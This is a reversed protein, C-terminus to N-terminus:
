PSQEGWRLRPRVNRVEASEDERNRRADNNEDALNTREGDHEQQEVSGQEIWGKLEPISFLGQLKNNISTDHDAEDEAKWDWFLLTTRNRYEQVTFCVYTRNMEMLVECETAVENMVHLLRTTENKDYMQAYWFLKTMCIFDKKIYDDRELPLCVEYSTTKKAYAPDITSTPLKRNTYLVLHILDPNIYYGSMNKFVMVCGYRKHGCSYECRAGRMGRRFCIACNGYKEYPEQSIITEINLGECLTRYEKLHKIRKRVDKTWQWDNPSITAKEVWRALENYCIKYLGDKIDRNYRNLKEKKTREAREQMSKKATEAVVGHIVIPRTDEKTYLARLRKLKRNTIATMLMHSVVELRKVDTFEYCERTKEKININPFERIGFLEDEPSSSITRHYESHNELQKKVFGYVEEHGKDKVTKWIDLPYLVSGDYTRKPEVDEGIRPDRFWLDMKVKTLLHISLYIRVITYASKEEQTNQQWNIAWSARVNFDM